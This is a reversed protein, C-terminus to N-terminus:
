PRATSPELVLVCRFGVNSDRGDPTGLRYSSWLSQPEASRWSGGRLVHERRRSDFWDDCWQWVNGSMDFLGFRNSAFYGVPSTTAFGDSYWRILGLEKFEAQAATDAFNGARKPPPWATGWPYVNRVKGAKRAPPGESEKELGAALSWEADEPLRYSEGPILRRNALETQTLWHCFARAESWRVMTVPHEPGQSARKGRFESRRWAPNIGPTERAYVAYDRVRTDWICFLLRTQPIRVFVMGLSNTWRVSALGPYRLPELAARWTAESYAELWLNTRSPQFGDARLELRATQDGPVTFVGDAAELPKGDDLLTFATAPTPRVRLLATRPVPTLVESFTSTHFVLGREERAIQFAFRKEGDIFAGELDGGKEEAEFPFQRGHFQIRGTHTAGIPPDFALLVQHSRWRGILPPLRQRLLLANFTGATFALKDGDAEFHCPWSKDGQAFTGELGTPELEAALVYTNGQFYLTGTWKAGKPLLRVEVGDGRFRGDYSARAAPDFPNPQGALASAAAFLLLAVITSWARM